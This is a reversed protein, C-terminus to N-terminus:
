QVEEENLLMEVLAAPRFGGDYQEMRKMIDQRNMNIVEMKERFKHLTLDEEQIVEAFGQESFYEANEIQDGRSQSLPLPILIM